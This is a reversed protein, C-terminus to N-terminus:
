ERACLRINHIYLRNPYNEYFARAMPLPNFGLPTSKPFHDHDAIVRLTERKERVCKGSDLWSMCFCGFEIDVFDSKGHV